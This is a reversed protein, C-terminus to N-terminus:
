EAACGYCPRRIGSNAADSLSCRAASRARSGSTPQCHRLMNVRILEAARLHEASFGNTRESYDFIMRPRNALRLHELKAVRLVVVPDGLGAAERVDVRLLHRGVASPHSRQGTKGGPQDGGVAVGLAHNRSIFRPGDPDPVLRRVHMCTPRSLARVPRYGALLDIVEGMPQALTEM